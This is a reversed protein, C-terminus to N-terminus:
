SDVMVDALLVIADDDSNNILHADQKM